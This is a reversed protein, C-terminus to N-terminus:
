GTKRPLFDTLAKKLDEYLEPSHNMRGRVIARTRLIDENMTEILQAASPFKKEERLFEEMFVVIWKGYLDDQFDLIYTETRLTSDKLFTPNYGINLAGPHWTNEAFVSAAYVGRRPIVKGAPYLVNATPFGLKQGRRDGSIVEGSFFFPYGLLERAAKMDGHAVSNRIHRSGVKDGDLTFPEVEAFNWGKEASYKRLFDTDGTRNSGFRFDGGVVIGSVPLLGQLFELFEKPSFEAFSRTFPIKITRPIKMYRALLDREDETFLVPIETGHVINGPHPSFTVVCWNQEDGGKGALERGKELLLRHGRHFGDFAGLLVIM